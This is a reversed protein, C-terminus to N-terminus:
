LEEIAIGKKRPRVLPEQAKAPIRLKTRKVGGQQTTNIILAV